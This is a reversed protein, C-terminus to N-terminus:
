TVNNQLIFPYMQYGLAKGVSNGTLQRFRFIAQKLHQTHQNMLASKFLSM